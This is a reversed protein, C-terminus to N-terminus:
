KMFYFSSVSVWGGYDEDEACNHHDDHIKDDGM